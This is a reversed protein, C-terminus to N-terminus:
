PQYHIVTGQEGGFWVDKRGSSPGWVAHLGLNPPGKPVQAFSKGDTTHLLTGRLDRGKDGVVWVDKPGALWVGYFDATVGGGNQILDFSLGGTSHLLTGKEGVAWLEREWGSIGYLTPVMPVGAVGGFPGPGVQSLVVGKRDPQASTDGGVVWTTDPLGWVGRLILSTSAVSRDHWATGDWNEIVGNNGAAFLAMATGGIGYMTKDTVGPLPQFTVGDHANEFTGVLGVAWVDKASRGAIGYLNRGANALVTSFSRGDQSHFIASGALLWIDSPGAGWISTVTGPNDMPLKVPTWTPTRADDKGVSLDDNARADGGQARSVCQDSQGTDCRMGTGCDQDISCYGTLRTCGVLAGAPVAFALVVLFRSVRSASRM